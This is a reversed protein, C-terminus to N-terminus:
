LRNNMVDPEIGVHASPYDARDNQTTQWCKRSNDQSPRHGWSLPLATPYQEPCLAGAEGSEGTWM